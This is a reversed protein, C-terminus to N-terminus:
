DGRQRSQLIGRGRRKIAEIDLPAVEGRDAQEIGIAIDRRLAELKAEPSLSQVRLLRLAEAVVQDPSAFMGAAIEDQVFQEMEPTLTINM